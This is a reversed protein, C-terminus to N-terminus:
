PSLREILWEGGSRRYRIRDHLRSPRGQWFEVSTPVLRYGGWHPPRPVPRDAFRAAVAQEQAELEDRSTVVKSQASAWAGLQSSRPRSAFYADSESASVPEIHGEIRIQRELDPWFFTLSAVPHATLEEGKRSQYNTYFVFGADSVGKILVIRGSPQGSASVTALHMANPEAVGIRVAAEFWATFQAVPNPLVDAADLGALTYEKRLAALEVSM